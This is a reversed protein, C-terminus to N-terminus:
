CTKVSRTWRHPQLQPNKYFNERLKAAFRSRNLGTRQRIATLRSAQEPFPKAKKINKKDM